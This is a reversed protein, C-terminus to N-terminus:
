TSFASVQVWDCCAVHFAGVPVPLYGHAKARRMRAFGVRHENGILGTGIIGCANLFFSRIVLFLLEVLWRNRESSVAFTSFFSRIVPFTFSSPSKNPFRLAPRQDAFNM